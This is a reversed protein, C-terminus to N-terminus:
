ACSASAKELYRRAVEVDDFPFKDRGIIQYKEHGKGAILVIDGPAAAELALEIGRRRDVEFRGKGAVAPLIGKQIAALIVQPDESRPNDSTAVFLDCLRSVVEGMMPRKGPDRDGGCGFVCILRQPAKVLSRLAGLVKELADPTHAYDVLVIKGSPDTVRQLRGPVDDFQALVEIMKEFDLGLAAGVGLACLLNSLNHAGLLPSRLAYVRRDFRIQAVIGAASFNAKEAILNASDGHQAYTLTRRQLGHALRRGYDDDLNIVAAADPKPSDALLTTFLRAKSQFYNEMTQHFDLHDRSLNTFAVVDFDVGDCRSMSLAHSSVESVVAQVGASAMKSLLAQYDLSEPTTMASSEVIGAYRTSVTGTAGVNFGCGRLLHEVLYTVTTKGNTGTIGVMKLSTSPNKFFARAALALARRSDRVVVATVGKPVSAANEVMLTTAGANLAQQVYQHGDLKEGRIAVFLSGPQVKRSDYAIAEVPLGLRGDSSIRDAAPLTELIDQFTM